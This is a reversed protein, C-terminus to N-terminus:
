ASYPGYTNALIQELTLGDDLQKIIAIVHDPTVESFPVGYLDHLPCNDNTHQYIMLDAFWVPVGILLAMTEAPNFINYNRGIICAAPTHLDFEFINSLTPELRVHGSLCATTKCVNMEAPRMFRTTTPIEQQEEEGNYRRFSQMALTDHKKAEKLMDLIIGRYREPIMMEMEEQFAFYKTRLNTIAEVAAKGAENVEDLNYDTPKDWGSPNIARHALAQRVKQIIRNAILDYPGCYFAEIDDPLDVTLQAIVREFSRATYIATQPVAQRNFDKIASM